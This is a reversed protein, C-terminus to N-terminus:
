FSEDGQSHGTEQHSRKFNDAFFALERNKLLEVSGRCSHNIFEKMLNILENDGVRDETENKMYYFIEVLEYLTLAYDDPNIYSSSCFAAIIKKVAEIGLEVRGNSRTARNRAEILEQAEAATLILGFKMSEKNTELIENIELQINVTGSKHYLDLLNMM